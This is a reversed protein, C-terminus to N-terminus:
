FFFLAFGDTEFIRKSLFPWELETTNILLSSSKGVRRVGLLGM